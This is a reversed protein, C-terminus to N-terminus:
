EKTETVGNYEINKKYRLIFNNKMESIKDRYKLGEIPKNNLRTELMDFAQRVEKMKDMALLVEIKQLIRKATPQIEIAADINALACEGDQSVVCIYSSLEHLKDAMFSYNENGSLILMMLVVKGQPIDGCKGAIINRTLIDLEGLTAIQRQTFSADKANSLIENWQGDSLTNGLVCYQFNIKRVNPFFLREDVKGAMDIAKQAEEYNGAWTFLNAQYMWARASGPHEKTMIKAHLLPKSMTDLEVITTAVIVIMYISCLSVVYRMRVMASAKVALSSLMFFIGFDSLYNRHEFYLELGLHSSELIHGAYFWLLGFSFLPFKKRLCIAMILSTLFGSMAFLTSLPHFLNISASYDDHFLSFGGVEPAIILGLYDMLVRPQTVLRQEMDFSRVVYAANIEPLTYLFYIGLMALPLILVLWKFYPWYRYHSTKSFITSEIVLIFLPLLVANEKFLIGILMCSLTSLTMGELAGRPSKEMKSRFFLYLILGSIVSMASLQAMRQVVYLVTTIQLPHLMWLASALMSVAVRESSNRFVATGLMMCFVYLLIGNIVHIILNVLKFASPNQPWDAHQFAFSLLSLPRGSPGAEAGFIFQKYGGTEILDLGALNSYDDVYFPTDLAGAYLGITLVVLLVPLYFRLHQFKFFSIM